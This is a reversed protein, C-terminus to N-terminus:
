QSHYFFKIAARYPYVAQGRCNRLFPARNFIHQLGVKDLLTKYAKNNLSSMELAEEQIEESDMTFHDPHYKRSNLYYKRKLEALDPELSIPIKFFEFFNM